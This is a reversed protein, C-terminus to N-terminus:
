SESTELHALDVLKDLIKKDMMALRILKDMAASQTVESREYKSFANIGGGFIVSAQAQTLGLQQCIAYIEEASLLGDIKKKANRVQKENELIQEKTMFERGCSNCISYTITVEYATSKYHNLEKESLVKIDTANCKNCIPM